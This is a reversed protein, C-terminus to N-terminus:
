RWINRYLWKHQLANRTIRLRCDNWAWPEWSPFCAHPAIWHTWHELNFDQIGKLCSKPGKFHVERLIVRWFAVRSQFHLRWKFDEIYDAWWLFWCAYLMTVVLLPTLHNIRLEERQVLFWTGNLEHVLKIHTKYEMEINKSQLRPNSGVRWSFPEFKLVRWFSVWILAEIKFVSHANKMNM